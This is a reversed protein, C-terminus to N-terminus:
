KKKVTKKKKGPKKVPAPKSPKKFTEKLMREIDVLAEEAEDGRYKWEQCDRIMEVLTEAETEELDVVIDGKKKGHANTADILANEVRDLMLNKQRPWGSLGKPLYALATKIWWVYPLAITEVVEGTRHNVKYPIM